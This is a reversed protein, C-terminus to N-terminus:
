YKTYDDVFKWVLKDGSKLGYDKSGVNAKVGNVYYLWGSNPYGSKKENLDLMGAIYGSIRNVQTPRPNRGLKQLAELTVDFANKGDLDVYVSAITKNEMANIFIVNAEPKPAPNAPKPSPASTKSAALKTEKKEAKKVEAKPKEGATNAQTKIEETKEPQTESTKVATTKNDAATSKRNVTFATIILASSM